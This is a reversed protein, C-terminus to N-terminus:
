TETPTSCFPDHSSLAACLRSCDLGVPRRSQLVRQVAWATAASRMKCWLQKGWGSVTRRFSRGKERDLDGNQDIAVDMIVGPYKKASFVMGHLAQAVAKRDLKGVKEIAAKLMYIGTYGKVGNHDSIYKYEQYFKAKFKLM